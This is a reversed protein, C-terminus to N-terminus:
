KAAVEAQVVEYAADRIATSLLAHFDQFSRVVGETSASSPEASSPEASPALPSFEREFDGGAAGREAIRAQVDALLEAEHKRVFASLESQLSANKPFRNLELDLIREHLLDALAEPKAGACAWLVLAHKRPVDLKRPEGGAAAPAFDCDALYPPLASEPELISRVCLDLLARYRSLYVCDRWFAERVATARPSQAIFEGVEINEGRMAKAYSQLTPDSVFPVDGSTSLHEATAFHYVFGKRDAILSFVPVAIATRTKAYPCRFTFGNWHADLLALMEDMPAQKDPTSRREALRAHLLHTLRPIAFLEVEPLSGRLYARLAEWPPLESEVSPPPDKPARGRFALQKKAEVVCARWGVIEHLGFLYQNVGPEPLGAGLEPLDGLEIFGNEHTPVPRDSGFELGTVLELRESWPYREVLDCSAPVAAKAPKTRLPASLENVLALYPHSDLFRPAEPAGDPFPTSALAKHVAKDVKSVLAAYRKDNDKYKDRLQRLLQEVPARAPPTQAAGHACLALLALGVGSVRQAHRTTL